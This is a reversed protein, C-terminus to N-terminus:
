PQSAGHVPNGLAEMGGRSTSLTTAWPEPQAGKLLLGLLRCDSYEVGPHNERGVEVRGRPTTGAPDHGFESIPQDAM